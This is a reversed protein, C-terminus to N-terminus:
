EDEAGIGWKARLAARREASKSHNNKPILSERDDTADRKSFKDLQRAGSKRSKRFCVCRCVCAVVLLVVLAGAGIVTYQLYEGNMVCQKWQWDPCVTTANGGFEDKSVGIFNGNGCKNLAQCWVCSSEDTCAGCDGFVHCNVDGAATTAGTGSM